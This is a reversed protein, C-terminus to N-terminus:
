IILSKPTMEKPKEVHMIDLVTAAINKLGGNKRLKANKYKESVLIFPVPNTTHAPCPEKTKEYIMYEANGHDATIILNYGKKLAKKYIKGICEDITECAKVVADFEGSHGVLDCNAFNQIIFDYDKDMQILVKKTIEPASMEPKQDYSPVKPSDVMIRSEKKCPDEEQSNFFFTVHAYKETEAIHLQRKNNKELTRALNTKVKPPPFVVPAQDSYEGFVVLNPRVMHKIKFGIKEEGTFCYTLQRPRDTRFNFFIVSENNHILGNPKLLVPKIYYDTEIGEKYSNKIAKIPDTEKKGKGETLLEYAKQTRNWNHDRDMAYFRGIITAIECTQKKGDFKLKKIQDKIMKLYKEASREPVDRGDTIAHIYTKAVRHKKAMQMLAFLHKIHSHVGEDSIMGLLHLPTGTKNAHNIAKLLIKKNFFNKNKISRNIQEYSQFVIKGAGITYHGVESNGMAGKPLGVENGSAALLTDPYTKKLYDFNPMRAAKIANGKYNKGEGFGDLIMLYVKEKKM